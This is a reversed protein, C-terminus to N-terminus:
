KQDRRATEVDTQMIEELSVQHSVKKRLHMLVCNM